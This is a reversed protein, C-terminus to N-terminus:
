IMRCDPALYQPCGRACLTWPNEEFHDIRLESLMIISSWGEGGSEVTFVRGGEEGRGPQLSWLSSEAGRGGRERAAHRSKGVRIFQLKSNYPM